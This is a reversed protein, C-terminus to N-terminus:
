CTQPDCTNLDTGCHQERVSGPVQRADHRDAPSIYQHFRKPLFLLSLSIELYSFDSYALMNKAANVRAHIIFQRFPMGVEKSFLKSLYTPHIQLYAAAGEITMKEQLHEYIYDMCKRVHISGVHEKKIERMREAYDLQMEGLMDIMRDIRECEDARQIYIDSLTYALDHSMGNEVCVRSILAVAVILHYRVNKVPDKSLTGLGQYFNQKIGAINERVKKVDGSSFSIRHFGEERQLYLRYNLDRNTNM